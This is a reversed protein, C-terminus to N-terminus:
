WPDGAYLVMDSSAINDAMRADLDGIMDDIDLFVQKISCLDYRYLRTTYLRLSVVFSHSKWSM